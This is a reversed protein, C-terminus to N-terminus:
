TWRGSASCTLARTTATLGSVDAPASGRLSARLHDLAARWDQRDAAISGLNFLVFPDGPSDALGKLLLAQDRKLKRRRLEVDAYGTHRVRLDTWRV